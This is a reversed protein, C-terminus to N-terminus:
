IGASESSLASSFCEGIYEKIDRVNRGSVKIAFGYLLSGTVIVTHDSWGCYGGNDDMHHFATQFILKESLSSDDLKTGNDFGGGSPLTEILSQLATEHKDQWESNGSRKCNDIAALLLAIRQYVQM